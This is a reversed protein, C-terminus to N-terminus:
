NGDLLKEVISLASLPYDQKAKSYHHHLGPTTNLENIVGGTMELSKSIDTTIIDVGVLEGTVLEVARCAIKTVSQHLEDTVETDYITRLEKRGQYKQGLSRVLVREHEKPISRLTLNQKNLTFNIDQDLIDSNLLESISSQGDGVISVGTRRVAHLVEGRFVLVRYNEGVIQEEIMLSQSYLSALFVSNVLQKVTYIHTTVGLGAYGNTPKVVVGSPHEKLFHKALEFQKVDFLCYQPIPISEASLLQHVLDKRGCIRLVVDNDVPLQHLRLPIKKGNKSIIWIDHDLSVIDASLKEAVRHWILHYEAVRDSLYVQKNGKLFIHKLKRIIKFLLNYLGYFKIAYM